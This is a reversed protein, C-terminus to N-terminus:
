ARQGALRLAVIAPLVVLLAAGLVPAPGLWGLLPLPKFLPPVLGLLLPAALGLAACGGFAGVEQLKVLKLAGVTALGEGVAVVSQLGLMAPLSLQLPTTQAWALEACAALTSLQISCWAAGVAVLGLPARWRRGLYVMAWASWCGVVGMNFLNWGLSLLGGDGLVVAQVGLVATMVVLARAPGLTLALLASGQFHASTGAPIPVMITQAVALFAALLGMQPLTQELEEGEAARLSWALPAAVLLWGLCALAPALFGDPLHLALTLM